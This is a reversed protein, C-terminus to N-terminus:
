TFGNSIARGITPNQVTQVLSTFYTGLLNNHNIMITAFKFYNKHLLTKLCRKQPLLLLFIIFQLFQTCRNYMYVQYSCMVNMSDDTKSLMKKQYFVNTLLPYPKEEIIATSVGFTNSCPGQYWWLLLIRNRHINPMSFCNKHHDLLNSASPIRNKM